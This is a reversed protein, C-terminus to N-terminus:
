MDEESNVIVVLDVYRTDPNWAGGWRGHWSAQSARVFLSIEEILPSPESVGTDLGAEVFSVSKDESVGSAKSNGTVLATVSDGINGESRWGARVARVFSTVEEDSGFTAGVAELEVYISRVDPEESIGEVWGVGAEVNKIEANESVAKIELEFDTEVSFVEREESTSKIDVVIESELFFVDAEETVGASKMDADAEVIRVDVDESSETIKVDFGSEIHKTDVYESIAAVRSEFESETLGVDMNESIVMVEHEADDSVYSTLEEIVDLYGDKTKRIGGPCGWPGGWNSPRGNVLSIIEETMPYSLTIRTYVPRADYRAASYMPAFPYILKGAIYDTGSFVGPGEIGALLMGVIKKKIYKDIPKWAAQKVYGDYKAAGYFLPPPVTRYRPSYVCNLSGMHEGGDYVGQAFSYTMVTARTRKRRIELAQPFIENNIVARVGMFVPLADYRAASYMPAFPYRVTRAYYDEEFHNAFPTPILVASGGPVVVPKPWWGASYFCKDYFCKDYGHELAEDPPTPLIVVYVLGSRVPKAAEIALRILSDTEPGLFDTVHEPDGTYNTEVAFTYPATGIEFWEHIKPELGLDRLVQKVAWLTGKKSHWAISNKILSRKMAIPLKDPEYFDVHWQWALMDLVPEPLEDIRSLILAERTDRSVSQLEPDLAKAIAQVNKDGSISSPLIKLLELNYIDDM